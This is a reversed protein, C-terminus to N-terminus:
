PLVLRNTGLPQRAIAEHLKQNRIGEVHGDAFSVMGIKRMGQHLEGTWSVAQDERLLFAGCRVPQNSLALHRDGSLFTNPVRNTNADLNLFYSLNTQSLAAYTNTPLRAGDSPCAFVMPARVYNSLVQFHPLATNTYELSGEEAIPVQWPFRGTNDSQWMINALVVQKQNNMCQWSARADNRRLISPALIAFLVGIIVLVVLLEVITIGRRNKSLSLKM